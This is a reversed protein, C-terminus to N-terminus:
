KVKIGKDIQKLAKKPNERLEILMMFAGEGNLYKSTESLQKATYGEVTIADVSKYNGDQIWNEFEAAIDQHEDFKRLKQKVMFGPAKNEEYYKRIIKSM